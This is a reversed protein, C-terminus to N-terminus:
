LLLEWGVGTHKGQDPMLKNFCKVSAQAMLANFPQSPAGVVPQYEDSFDKCDPVGDCIKRYLMQARLLDACLCGKEDSNDPCDRIDNCRGFGSICKGTSM